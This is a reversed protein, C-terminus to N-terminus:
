LNEIFVVHARWSDANRRGDLSTVGRYLVISRIRCGHTSGEARAINREPRFVVHDKPHFVEVQLRRPSDESKKAIYAM